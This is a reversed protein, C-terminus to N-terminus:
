CLFIRKYIDDAFRIICTLKKDKMDYAYEVLKGDERAKIIFEMKDWVKPDTGVFRNIVESNIFHGYAEADNMEKKSSDVVNFTDFKSTYEQVFTKVYTMETDEAIEVGLVVGRM